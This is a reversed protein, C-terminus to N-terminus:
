QAAEVLSDFEGSIKAEDLAGNFFAELTEDDITDIEEQTMGSEILAARIESITAQKFFAEVQEPSEFSVSGAALVQEESLGEFLEAVAADNTNAEEGSAVYTGCDKGIPCNPNNGSFTETKDDFGDSDTDVVYPSTKYVYLEDFDVLGDGDTDKSKSEELEAAEREDTTLFSEGTYLSAIQAEIPRMLNAGFSRFGLIM